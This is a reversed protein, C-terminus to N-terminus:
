SRGNPGQHSLLRRPVFQEVNRAAHRTSAAATTGDDYPEIRYFMIGETTKFGTVKVWRGGADGSTETRRRSTEHAAKHWLIDGSRIPKENDQKAADEPDVSVVWKEPITVRATSTIQSYFGSFKELLPLDLPDDAMLPILSGINKVLHRTLRLGTTGRDYVVLATSINHRKEEGKPEYIRSTAVDINNPSINYQACYASKILDALRDMEQYTFDTKGFDFLVGSTNLTHTYRRQSREDKESRSGYMRRTSSRGPVSRYYGITQDMISMPLERIRGGRGSVTQANRLKPEDQLFVWRQMDPRTRDRTTIQKVRITIQGNAKDSNVWSEVEFTQGRHLYIAEPYLERIAGEQGISGLNHTSGDAMTAMISMNQGSATDRLSTALHPNGRYARNRGAIAEDRIPNGDQLYKLAALLKPRFGYRKDTLDTNPPLGMDKLEKQLCLAHGTLIGPNDIYVTPDSNGGRCYEELSVPRKGRSFANKPAIVIFLGDRHRGVRGLRQQLASSSAPKKVCIGYEMDPFDIGMEAMSTSALVAKKGARMDAQIEERESQSYNGRLPTVFEAGLQHNIDVTMEEVARRSDIFIIGTGSQDAKKLSLIDKLLSSALKVEDGASAAIHIVDQQRKPSGDLDPGIEIFEQGTLEQMFAPAKRLSASAALIQFASKSKTLAGPTIGAELKKQYAAFQLRAFLHPAHSGLTENYVHAEDLILLELNALFKKIDPKDLNAMVWSQLTDPTILVLKSKQIVAHRADDNKIDGNIVGIEAPDLGARQFAAIWRNHLQDSQLAKAPYIAFSTANPNLDLTRLMRAIFVDSKGSSTKTTLCVNHGAELENAAAGQHTWFGDRFRKDQRIWEGAHGFLMFEPVPAYRAVQPAVTFSEMLHSEWPFALLMDTVADKLSQQVM